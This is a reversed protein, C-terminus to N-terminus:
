KNQTGPAGPAPIKTAQSAYSLLTAVQPLTLKLKLSKGGPGGVKKLDM